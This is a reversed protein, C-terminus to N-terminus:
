FLSSSVTSYIPLKGLTNIWSIIVLMANVLSIIYQDQVLRACVVCITSVDICALLVALIFVFMLIFSDYGGIPWNATAAANANSTATAAAADEARKKEAELALRDAESPEAM